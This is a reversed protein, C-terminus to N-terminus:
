PYFGPINFFSMEVAGHWWEWIWIFVNTLENFLFLVLWTFNEICIILFYFIIFLLYFYQYTFLICAYHAQVTLYFTAKISDSQTNVTPKQRQHLANWSNFLSRVASRSITFQDRLDKNRLNCTYMEYTNVLSLISTSMSVSFYTDARIASM